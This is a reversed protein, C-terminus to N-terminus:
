YQVMGATRMGATLAKALAVIIEPQRHFARNGIAPNIGLDIDLVPTFSLDVGVNLVEAALLWGCTTALNLAKEPSVDYLKGIEGMSPLRTFGERFRQVRGGEQDVFILIPKKRAQRISRTLRTIQEPSEYNRAFFIVGGLLPHSLMEKEEASLETGILDFVVPGIKESM